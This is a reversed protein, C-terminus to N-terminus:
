EYGSIPPPPPSRDDDDGDFLAFKVAEEADMGGWVVKMIAPFYEDLTRCANTIMADIVIPNPTDADANSLRVWVNFTDNPGSSPGVIMAGYRAGANAYNAVKVMEDRKDSEFEDQIMAFVSYFLGGESYHVTCDISVHGGTYRFEVFQYDFTGGDRLRYGVNRDDLYAPIPEIKDESM